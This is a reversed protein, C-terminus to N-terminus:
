IRDKAPELVVPKPTTIRSTFLFIIILLLSFWVYSNGTIQQIPTWDLERDDDGPLDLHPAAIFLATIAAAALYWGVATRRPLQSAYGILTLLAPAVWVWHHSWSIPSILLAVVANISLALPAVPARRMTAVALVVLAAALLLWLLTSLTGTFGLRALVGQFSQNTQFATGSLGDVNGFGGFWYKISETPLIAFALLTAAAGSLAATAAARYDKRVLFFLVFAAPTLKIAAALGLLLGRPWRPNRSLCDAAVLGMLMLNVQGFNLTSFVPELLLALPASIATVLLASQRPPQEPWLARTVCYLTVALALLSVLFYTMVAVSWPLLAFIGLALAAFPPYIFPLSINLRTEPLHGYLNGDEWIQRVGLQYV